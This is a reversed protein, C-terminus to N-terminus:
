KGEKMLLVVTINDGGGGDKAATILSKVKNKIGTETNITNSIDDETVYNILGDSCLLLSDFDDVMFFDVTVEKEIGLARTIVNRNPHNAAEEETIKGSDLLYQVFSHDKTVQQLCGKYLRYLRSDGVNIVFAKNRWVFAAVLTTGMGKLGEDSLARQVVATNAETAATIMANKIIQGSLDEGSKGIEKFLTDTYVCVALESAIDGGRVGGMGDCVLASVWEDSETIKFCDENRRRIKGVDSKGFSYM